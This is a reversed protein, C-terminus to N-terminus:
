TKWQTSKCHLIAFFPLVRSQYKFKKDLSIRPQLNHVTKDSDNKKHPVHLNNVEHCFHNLYFWVCKCSVDAQILLQFVLASCLM